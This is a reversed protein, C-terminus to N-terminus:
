MVRSHLHLEAVREALWRGEATDPISDALDAMALALNEPHHQYKM